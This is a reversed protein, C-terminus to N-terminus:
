AEKPALAMTTTLRYFTLSAVVILALPLLAQWAGLHITLAPPLIDQATGWPTSSNTGYLASLLVPALTLPLVATGLLGGLRYYAAHVLLGSVNGAWYLLFLFLLLPLAHSAALVDPDEGLGARWGLAEFIPRELLLLLVLGLSFTAALAAATLLSGTATGSRTIGNMIYTPAMVGCMLTISFGFWLGAQQGFQVISVTPTSSWQYVLTATVGIAIMILLFWKAVYLCMGMTMDFSRRWHPGLDRPPPAPRAVTTTSM